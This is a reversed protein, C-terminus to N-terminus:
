APKTVVMYSVGGASYRPLYWAGGRDYTKGTDLDITYYAPPPAPVVAGVPPAAVVCSVGQSAYYV